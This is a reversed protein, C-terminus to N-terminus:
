TRVDVGLERLLADKKDKWGGKFYECVDLDKALYDDPHDRVATARCGGCCDTRYKCDRCEPNHDMFDQITFSVIDMYLSDTDLIEELPKELMNPFQQEIPSGVMSMCPLVNGQPSVYMGRRVHGCMQAKHFYNEAVKKEHIAFAGSDPLDYSFFGELGISIPKGDEFYQPIYSLFTEFLEKRKLFHEPEKLWEGQPSAAGIKMHQVGLSAMLKVTERICDKSEKCIVMSVSTPIKRDRCRKLADLAIQEAGPVGRMWDHHGVGDFSFQIAPHIDREALKDLFDDTVLLGNSYITDLRFDRAAIEDILRWFDPHVMPEGGTIHLNRVGCREFAELMTMLQEWSPEGQAGEPASMFCHRCNYNCKGTISWHVMEKFRADYFRYEQWSNLHEGPASRRIIHNKEWHDYIKRQKDTLQDWRIETEGDCDALLLFLDREMFETRRGIRNQIAFPVLKWGRLAYDPELLYRRIDPDMTKETM